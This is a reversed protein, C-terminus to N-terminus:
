LANGGFSRTRCQLGESVLISCVRAVDAASVVPGALLAFKRDPVVPNSEIVYRPELTGLALGHREQLLRWTLRLSDVSTGSALLIALAPAEDVAATQVFPAGFAIEPQRPAAPAPTAPRPAAPAAPQLQTRVVAPRPPARDPPPPVSISGTVIPNASVVTNSPAVSNAPPAPVEEDPVARQALITQTSVSKTRMGDIGVTDTAAAQSASEPRSPAAATEAPSTDAVERPPTYTPTAAPEVDTQPFPVTQRDYRELGTTRPAAEPAAQSQQPAEALRTSAADTGLFLEPSTVAISLYIMSLVGVVAWGGIYSAPLGAPLLITRSEESTPRSM